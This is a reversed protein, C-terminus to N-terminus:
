RRVLDITWWLQRGEAHVGLGALRLRCDLLVARHPPSALWRKLAGRASMTGMAVVEGMRSADAYGAAAIRDRLSAEGPVQHTLARHAAMATSHAAASAHLGEAPRLRRCGAKRRAGNVQHLLRVEIRATDTAPPVRAAAATWTTAPAAVPSATAPPPAPLVTLLATAVVTVISVVTLLLSASRM